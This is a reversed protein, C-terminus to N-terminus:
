SIIRGDGYPMCISLTDVADVNLLPEFNAIYYLVIVNLIRLM